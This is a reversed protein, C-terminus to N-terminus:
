KLLKVKRKVLKRQDDWILVYLDHEEWKAPLLKSSQDMRTYLAAHSPGPSGSFLSLIDFQVSFDQKEYKVYWM